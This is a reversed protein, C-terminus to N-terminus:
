RGGMVDEAARVDGHFFIIGCLFTGSRPLGHSANSPLQLFKEEGV